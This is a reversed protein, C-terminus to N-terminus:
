FGKQVNLGRQQVFTVIIVLERVIRWEAFQERNGDGETKM